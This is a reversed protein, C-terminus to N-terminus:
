EWPAVPAPDFDCPFAACVSCGCRSAWLRLRGSWKKSGAPLQGLRGLARGTASGRFRARGGAAARSAIPNTRASKSLRWHSSQQCVPQRFDKPIGKKDQRNKAENACNQKTTSLVQTASHNQGLIRVRVKNGTKGMEGLKTLAMLMEEIVSAAPNSQKECAVTPVHAAKKRKRGM